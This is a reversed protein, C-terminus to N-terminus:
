AKGNAMAAGEPTRRLQWSMWPGLLGGLALSTWALGWALRGPVGGAPTGFDLVLGFVWPAIAGMGFGLVSRVAYASGILRHPVLETLATSYVSSDGIATINYIIAVITLAWLPAAMLWGFVLSIVLSTLGMGLMVATRGYRDSLTGGSMSGITGVLHAVGAMVVGIGIAGVTHSRDLAAATALYAPLWAWMGLLEYCHFAYALIALRAPRNRWVARISGGDAEAPVPPSVLNATGRLVWRALVVGALTAMAAGVLASRWGAVPSIIGAGFLALAYGTSAAALYFGMARGRRGPEFREAILTLAPTYSGGSCLATLGYLILASWFGNAFFAFLLASACAAYNMALFVAKAGYRESLRGAAFLSVLYSGHWASQILGAQAASMDWSEKVLPLVGSYVTFILAFALRSLCLWALWRYDTLAPAAGTTAHGTSQM